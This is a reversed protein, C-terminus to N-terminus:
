GEVVEGRVVSARVDGGETLVVLDADAGPELIGKRKAAVAAAPNKTALRVAQQLNWGGFEMVNRVARDLTLVSGALSGDRTVRGDKVEVDMGGLQYHGEPMGAASIADTILVAREEGKAELFIRVV